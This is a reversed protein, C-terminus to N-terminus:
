FTGALELNNLIHRSSLRASLASQPPRTALEVSNPRKLFPMFVPQIIPTYVLPAFGKLVHPMRGENMSVWVSDNKILKSWWLEM